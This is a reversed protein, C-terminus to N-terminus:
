IRLPEQVEDRYVVNGEENIELEHEQLFREYVTSVIDKLDGASEYDLVWWSQPRFRDM